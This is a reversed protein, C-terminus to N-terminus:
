KYDLVIPIIPLKTTAADRFLDSKLRLRRRRLWWCRHHRHSANAARLWFQFQNHEFSKFGNNATTTTTIPCVRFKDFFFLCLHCKDLINKPSPYFKWSNVRFIVGDTFNASNLSSYDWFLQLSNTSSDVSCITACFRTKEPFILLNPLLVSSFSRVFELDTITIITIVM